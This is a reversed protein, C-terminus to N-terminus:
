HACVILLFNTFFLYLHGLSALFPEAETIILSICTFVFFIGYEGVLNTLILLVFLLPFFVTGARRPIAGAATQEEGGPSAQGRLWTLGQRAKGTSMNPDLTRCTAGHMTWLAPLAFELPIGPRCPAAAELPKYTDKSTHQACVCVRFGVKIERCRSPDTYSLYIKTWKRETVSNVLM